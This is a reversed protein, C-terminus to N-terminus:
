HPTPATVEINKPFKTKRVLLIAVIAVVTVFIYSVHFSLAVAIGCLISGLGWAAGNVSSAIGMAWGQKEAPAANSLLSISCVYALGVGIPVPIASIWVLVINMPISICFGITVVILSYKLITEAPMFKVVIRIIFLLSLAYMIGILSMFHGIQTLSYKFNDSLSIATSQFFMSYTLQVLLLILSVNRLEKSSFGEIMQSIGKFPSIKKKETVKHTEHFTYWLLVANGLAMACAILFPSTYGFEGLLKINTAVGGFWPGLSFGLASALSVLSLNATKSQKSSVDIVAAQALGMSGALFGTFGRALVITIVSKFVLAMGMMFMGLGEGVLCCMLIKKRGLQDSLDGILPSGFIMAIPFAGVTLGYYISSEAPTLHPFFGGGQTSFVTAFVPYVIGVGLADIFITLLLPLYVLYQNKKSM